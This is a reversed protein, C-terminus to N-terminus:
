ALMVNTASAEDLDPYMQMATAVTSMITSVPELNDYSVYKNFAPIYISKEQWGANEMTARLKPDNPAAGTFYGNMAFYSTLGMIATGTALKAIALQGKVGGASMDSYFQKALFNLGPTHVTGFEAIRVPTRFFPTITARMFANNTADQLAKGLTGEQFAKSFTNEHAFQTAGSLMDVTPENMLKDFLKVKEQGSVGSEMVKRKALASMEGKFSLVKFFEDTGTMVNMNAQAVKAMSDIVTPLTGGDVAQSEQIIRQAETFKTSGFTSKGTKITDGWYGFAGKKGGARFSDALTEYIGQMLAVTEGPAVSTGKGGGARYIHGLIEGAGRDMVAMGLAGANGIFNRAQTLPSGLLNLGYYIQWLAEPYRAAVSAIKATAAKDALDTLMGILQDDSVKGRNLLADRMGEIDKNLTAINFKSALATDSMVGQANLARGYATELNTVQQSLRGTLLTKDVTARALEKDGTLKVQISDKIVQEAVADRVSRSAVSATALEDLSLTTSDLSLVGDVTNFRSHKAAERTMEHTQAVSRKLLGAQQLQENIGRVLAKAETGVGMRATNPSPNEGVARKPFRLNVSGTEGHLTIANMLSERIQPNELNDVIRTALKPSLALGVGAGILANRAATYPDEGTEAGVVAGIAARSIAFLTGASIKGEQGGGLIGNSKLGSLASKSDKLEAAIATRLEGMESETIGRLIRAVGPAAEAAAEPVLGIDHATSIAVNQAWATKAPSAGAEVGLMQHVDANERLGFDPMKYGQEKLLAPALDIDGGVLDLATQYQEPTAKVPKSPKGERAARFAAGQTTQGTAGKYPGEAEQVAKDLATAVGKRQADPAVEIKRVSYGGGEERTYWLYGLDNGEKDLAVVMNDNPGMVARQSKGAFTTDEVIRAVPSEKGAAPAELTAGSGGSIPPLAEDIAKAAAPEAKLAAIKEAPAATTAVKGTDVAAQGAAAVAEIRGAHAIDEVGTLLKGAKQVGLFAPMPLAAAAGIEVALGVNEQATKVREDYPKQLLNQLTKLHEEESVGMQKVADTQSLPDSKFSLIRAKSAEIQQQIAEDTLSPSVSEALGAAEQGAQNIAGFAPGAPTANFAGAVIGGVKKAFEGIGGAGLESRRKAEEPSPNILDMVDSPLTASSGLREAGAEMIRRGIGPGQGKPKQGTILGSLTQPGASGEVPVAPYLFDAVPKAIAGIASGARQFFSTKPEEKPAPAPAPQEPQQQEAIGQAWKLNDADKDQAYRRALEIEPNPM